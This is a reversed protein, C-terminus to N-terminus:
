TSRLFRSSGSWSTQLRRYSRRRAAVRLFLRGIAAFSKDSGSRKGTDKLIAVSPSTASYPSLM